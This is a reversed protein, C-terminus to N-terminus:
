LGISDNPVTGGGGQFQPYVVKGFAGRNDLAMRMSFGQKRYQVNSNQALGLYPIVLLLYVVTAIRKIM